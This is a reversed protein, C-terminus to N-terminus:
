TLVMTSLVHITHGAPCRATGPRMTLQHQHHHDDHHNNNNNDNHIYIYIYIYLIYIHIYIYIFLMIQHNTAFLSDAYNKRAIRHIYIFTFYAQSISLYGIKNNFKTGSETLKRYKGCFAQWEVLMDVLM